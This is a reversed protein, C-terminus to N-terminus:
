DGEEDEEEEYGPFDPFVEPDGSVVFMGETTIKYKGRGVKEVYGGAQLTSLRRSVTVRSVGTNEAIISPTLTLGTYLVFLIYADAGTMWDPKDGAIIPQVDGSLDPIYPLEDGEVSEEDDNSEM